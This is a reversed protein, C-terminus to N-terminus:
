FLTGPIVMFNSPTTVLFGKAELEIFVTEEHLTIGLTVM